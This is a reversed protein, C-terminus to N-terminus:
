LVVRLAEEAGFIRASLAVEKVWDFSGVIKPLRSLVGIVAAMGIDVEKVSFRVDRTYIRIDAASSLDIAFGYAYGHMATIVLKECREIATL